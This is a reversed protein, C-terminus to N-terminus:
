EELNDVKEHKKLGFPFILFIVPLFVIAVFMSVILTVDVTIPLYKIFEGVRGSLAL